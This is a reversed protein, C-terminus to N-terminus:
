DNIKSEVKTEDGSNRFVESLIENFKKRKRNKFLFIGLSKVFLFLLLLAFGIATLFLIGGVFERITEWFLILLVIVIGIVALSISGITIIALLGQGPKSLLLVGIAIIILLFYLM